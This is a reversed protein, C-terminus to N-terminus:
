VLRKLWRKKSETYPPYRIAPDLKFGKYLISKAHSFTRFTWDGHYQGFGSEGVGGFSFDSVAMQAHLDNICVGGSSTERLVRDQVSSSGAMLYLVLPKPRDRIFSIADQISDYPVVLLVPGFIEEELIKADEREAEVITPAIYREDRDVQGGLLVQTGEFLGQIREVHRENIVRGYDVSEQPNSGYLEEITQGCLRVFQEKHSRPILVYDPATCTQGANFYKAWITRRVAVALDSKSRCVDEAFLCPSKGGLELTVPTLHKAAATMVIRGVTGNGTYFIHDFRQELLATTEPVGGEFVKVCSSDVYKPLLEALVKSANASVESPKIAVCNGAAIAGVLPTLVLQLPYNWPGIVLVVGLPEQMSEVKAPQQVLPLWRTSKSQCWEDLHDLAYEAEAHTLALDGVWGEIAPRGLDKQLAEILDAEREDIMKIIGSLQKRRWSLPRTTGEDFATRLAAVGDAIDSQQAM